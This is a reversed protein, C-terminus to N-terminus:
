NGVFADYANLRKKARRRVRLTNNPATIPIAFMAKMLLADVTPQTSLRLERINPLCKYSLNDIIVISVDDSCQYKETQHLHGHQLASKIDFLKHSSISLSSFNAAPVFTQRTMIDLIHSHELLLFLVLFGFIYTTPKM